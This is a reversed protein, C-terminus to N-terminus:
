PKDLSTHHISESLLIQALISEPDQVLAKSVYSFIVILVVFFIAFFIRSIRSIRSFCTFVDSKSYHKVFFEIRSIRSFILLMVKQQIYRVFCLNEFNDFVVNLFKM